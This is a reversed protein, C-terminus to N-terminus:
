LQGVSACGSGIAPSIVATATIPSETNTNIRIVGAGGGGGGIKASEGDGGDIVTGASGSGGGGVGPAAVAGATGNMAGGNDVGNGHGAGGNASITGAISVTPAEILIAGGSGGGARMWWGGSGHATIFGATDLRFTNGAVLQIAGGGEGGDTTHGGNSGGILPQIASTAYIRGSDNAGDGGLGRGGKGCFSGGGAGAGTTASRGTGPGGGDGPYGGVQGPEAWFHGLILISDSAILVLPISGTVRVQFTRAVQMQKTAFLGVQSGDTQTYKKFTYDVGAKFSCGATGNDTDIIQNTSTSGCHTGDYVLGGVYLGTTDTPSLNSPQFPLSTAADVSGTEARATTADAGSAPVDVGTDVRISAEDATGAITDAGSSTVDIGADVRPSAADAGSAVADGRILADADNPAVDIGNAVADIGSLGGDVGGDLQSTTEGVDICVNVICEQGKLCDGGAACTNRCIKDSACVLPTKCQPSTASCSTETALQCIGVNDVQICREGTPCDRTESCSQHCASFKCVLPNNCDSNLACTGGLQLKKDNGGCAALFSALIIGFSLHSRKM